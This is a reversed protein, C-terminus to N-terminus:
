TAADLTIIVATEGDEGKGILKKLAGGLSILTVMFGYKKKIAKAVPDAAAGDVVVATASVPSTGETIRGRMDCPQLTVAPNNRLRKVKGSTAGTTFGCTGDSLPAIWVPTPVAEGNRRFTTLSVYKEDAIGM